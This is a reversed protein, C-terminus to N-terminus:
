AQGATPMAEAYGEPVVKNRNKEDAEDALTKFASWTGAMSASIAKWEPRQAMKAYTDHLGRAQKPAMALAKGDIAQYVRWGNEADYMLGVQFDAGTPARMMHNMFKRWVKKASSM